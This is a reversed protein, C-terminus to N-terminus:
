EFIKKYTDILVDTQFFLNEESLIGLLCLNQLQLSQIQQRITRLGAANDVSPMPFGSELIEAKAWIVKADPALIQFNNLDQLAKEELGRQDNAEAPTVLMEISLPYGGNRYAGECYNSFNTLRYTSFNKDYCFFYYLDGMELPKDVLINAVVTKLPPDFVLNSYDLGLFRGLLPMNGTWVLQQINHLTVANGNQQLEAKHIRHNSYDIKKLETNNWLLVGAAKLEKLLSEVLRYMGYKKPYYARRGSSKELPLNRQEPFAIRESILPNDLLQRMLAEDFLVVRNMPTLLTAMYDLEALPRRHNKELAPAIAKQTILKGFRYEAYASASMRTQEQNTLIERRNLNDFFDALCQRYEEEPLNRLDLYISNQQLTGNFFVGALDRKAGELIQWEEPPLLSFILEDLAPFGTELMNHMGYDFKGYEGYDFARLLGGFEASKEIIVVVDEPKRKKWLLAGLLGSIGSGNILVVNELNMM